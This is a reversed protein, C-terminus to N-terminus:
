AIVTTPVRVMISPITSARVTHGRKHWLPAVDVSAHAGLSSRISGARITIVKLSPGM